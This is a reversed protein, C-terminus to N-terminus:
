TSQNTKATAKARCKAGTRAKAKNGPGRGRPTARQKAKPPGDPRVPIRESGMLKKELEVGSPRIIRIDHYSKGSARLLYGKWSGGHARLGDSFERTASVWDKNRPGTDAEAFDAPLRLGEWIEALAQMRSDPYSAARRSPSEHGYFAKAQTTTRPVRSRGGNTIDGSLWTPVICLAGDAEFMYTLGGAPMNSASPRDWRGNALERVGRALASRTAEYAANIEPAPRGAFLWDTYAAEYALALAELQDEISAAPTNKAKAM